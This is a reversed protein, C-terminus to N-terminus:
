ATQGARLVGDRRLLRALLVVAALAAASESVLFSLWIGTLGMPGALLWALPLTIVFQRLLFIVLSSRGM